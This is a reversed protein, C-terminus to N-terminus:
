IRNTKGEWACLPVECLTDLEIIRVQNNDCVAVANDCVAVANDATMMHTATTSAM